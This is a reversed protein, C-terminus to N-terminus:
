IIYERSTSFHNPSEGPSRLYGVNMIEESTNYEMKVALTLHTVCM